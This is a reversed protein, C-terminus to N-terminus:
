ARQGMVVYQAGLPLWGLRREIRRLLSSDRTFFVIYRGRPRDLDAGRLLRMAEGRRLLNVDQDFECGAVAHRTLPNLPNHEFLVVLGGPKCVRKMEAVVGARGDRPVHHLVCIAFCVDFSREGFPIGEGIGQQRYEAWPNRERARELVKPAIDVGALNGVRGELFRDTEGTGCGVDLFDLGGPPGISGAVSELLARVKIATFHDLGAGAFAISAEVADRYRDGYEDFEAPPSEPMPQLSSLVSRSPRPISPRPKFTTHSEGPSGHVESENFPESARSASAFRGLRVPEVDGVVSAARGADQDTALAM